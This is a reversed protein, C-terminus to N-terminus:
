KIRCLYGKQNFTLLHKECEWDIIWEDKRESMWKNVAEMPGKDDWQWTIPNGPNGAHTDEVIMYGGVPVLESYIEMEKLVHEETHWSDLIVICNRNDGISNMVKDVTIQNTSGGNIFEIRNSFKYKGIEDLMIKNEIDITIVKGHDILECISAYFAASGGYATGTEVIYDPRTKVILEQVVQMDMPLKWCPIKLWYNESWIKAKDYLKHYEDIFTPM